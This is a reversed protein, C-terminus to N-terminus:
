WTVKFAKIKVKEVLRRLYANEIQIQIQIKASIKEELEPFNTAMYSGDDFSKKISSINEQYSSIADIAPLAEKRFTDWSKELDKGTKWLSEFNKSVPFHAMSSSIQRCHVSKKDIFRNLINFFYNKKQNEGM